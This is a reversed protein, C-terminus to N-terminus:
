RTVLIEASVFRRVTVSGAAFGGGIEASRFRQLELELSSGPACLTAIVDHPLVLTGIDEDIAGQDSGTGNLGRGYWKMPDSSSPSWTILLDVGSAITTPAKLVLATPATGATSITDGARNLTMTVPEDVGVPQALAGTGYYPRGYYIENNEGYTLDITQDHIGVALHDSADLIYPESGDFLSASARVTQDAIVVEIAASM